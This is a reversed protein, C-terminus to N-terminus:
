TCIDKWLQVQVSGNTYPPMPINISHKKTKHFVLLCESKVEVQLLAMQNIERQTLFVNNEDVLMWRRDYKFGRDTVLASPLAIGGLSKIPYVYLESVTLMACLYKCM